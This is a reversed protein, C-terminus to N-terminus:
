GELHPRLLERFPELRDADARASTYPEVRGERKMGREAVTDLNRVISDIFEFDEGDLHERLLEASVPEGDAAEVMEGIAERIERYRGFYNRGLPAISIDGFVRALDRAEDAELAVIEPEDTM